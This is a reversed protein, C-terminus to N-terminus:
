GTAPQEVRFRRYSWLGQEPRRRVCREIAANLAATSVALDRSKVAEPAPEFHLGFGARDPLREGWGLIVAAGTREALRGILTATNTMRGFYPAFVGQGAGPDQDCPIGLLRGARLGRLLERVSATGVPILKGGFRCRSQRFFSDLERMRPPRYQGILGHHAACHVSLAEIAGLHLAALIVGRGKALAENLHQEGEVVHVMALVREPEWTWFAAHELLMRMDEVLSTKAFRRRERESWEPFAIELSEITNARPRTPLEALISGLAGGLGQIGGLSLKGIGRIAALTLAASWPRAPPPTRKASPEDSPGSPTSPRHSRQM